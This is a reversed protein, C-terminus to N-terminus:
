RGGVRRGERRGERGGEMGGEREGERGAERGFNLCLCIDCACAHIFILNLILLTSMPPRIMVWQWFYRFFYQM